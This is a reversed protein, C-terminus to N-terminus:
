WHTHVPTGVPAWNYIWKAAPTPLNVCGHSMPHGFNHHWYTGHIAYGGTFYMTYPVAPLYYYEAGYGGSMDDALYKVYIKYDGIVTPHWSVGTSVLTSFVPTSGEYATLTQTSVNVDIWKGSHNTDIPPLTKDKGPKNVPQNIPAPTPAPNGPAPKSITDGALIELTQGAYILNADTMHNRAMIADVTTNHAAAITYMQDGPQVVYLLLNGTGSAPVVKQNSPAPTPAVQVPPSKGQPPAPAAKAPPPVQPVATAAPPVTTGKSPITINQGAFILSPNSIGNAQTLADVSVGYRAAVNTLNDGAQVRYSNGSAPAPQSQAPVPPPATSPAPAPSASSPITLRQGAWIFNSNSLGNASVLSDLSVGYRVAITSLNDGAQVVYGGTTGSASPAAPAAASGGPITLVEGVFILNPSGISNAAALADVSVGYEAAISTLTEGYQVAHTGGAASAVNPLLLMLGLLLTFITISIRKM